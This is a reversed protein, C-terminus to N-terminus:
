SMAASGQGGQERRQGRQGLGGRQGGVGVPELVAPLCCEQGGQVLGGDRGPEGVAFCHVQVEVGDRVPAVVRCQLLVVHGAPGLAGAAHQGEEGLVGAAVGQEVGVGVQGLGALVPLDDGEGVVPVGGGPAVRRQQDEVGLEGGLGHEGFEVVAADSEDGQAGAVRADGPM